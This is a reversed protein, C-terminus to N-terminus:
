PQPNDPVVAVCRYNVFNGSGIAMPTQEGSHLDIHIIGGALDFADPDGVLLDHKGWVVLGFPSALAGEGSVVTQAGNRPDIQIIRRASADSIYITKQDSVAIAVPTIINGGTAVITQEGSTSDIRVVLGGADAVYLEGTPAAAVGLPAKLVGGASVTRVSGDAPNIGLIAQANAVIIEGDGNIAVGYPVGLQEGSALIKTQGTAPDIAIIAMSGTDAVYVTQDAGLALGCPRVLSGGVVVPSTLGTLVDLKLVAAESDTFIIDGPHLAPTSLRANQRRSGSSLSSAEASLATFLTCLAVSAVVNLPPILSLFAGTSVRAAPAGPNEIRFDNMSSSYPKPMTNKCSFGLIKTEKIETWRSTHKQCLGFPL